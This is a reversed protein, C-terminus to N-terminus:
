KCGKGGRKPKKEEEVVMEGINEDIVQTQENEGEAKSAEEDEVVDISKQIKVEEGPIAEAFGNDIFKIAMDDELNAVDGPAYSWDPSAIVVLMKVKM